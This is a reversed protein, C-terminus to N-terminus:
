RQRVKSGLIYRLDKAIAMPSQEPTVPMNEINILPASGDAGKNPANFVASWQRDTLVPEPRGTGNHVLSTGPMLQGGSDFLSPPRGMVVAARAAVERVNAGTHPAEVIKSVPNSYMWVHGPHPFGLDGPQPKDVPHVWNIQAESVRPIDKVGAAQWARMTLGSCDFSDPGTAGWKYPKGLQAKAYALAPGGGAKDKGAIWKIVNAIMQKPANVLMQGWASGGMAKGAQDLLPNLLAEAGAKLGGAVLDRIGGVIGGGAFAGAFGPDGAIGLFRAVGGVGGSRAASNAGHVYKEGVAKTWEPRMIAEGGSVAAMGIDKGPTYGPYIGGSAFAIPSLKLNKLGLIDAVANWVKVIGNNYVVDVIFQVPKKAVDKVKDWATGILDVGAKFGAPIDKTVFSVLKDFVPKIVNNWAASIISGVKDFVPKVVNEHFWLIKPALTVTIFNWLAQFAPKIISEWVFKIAAGVKDFIPKVITNHFWLIKPALTVTFFNWLATLAPKIVNNWAYQVAASIGTWAPVIITNWLWAFIPALTNTIFGWIATFVPQIVNTWAWQVAVQIGQWAAEVAARFPPFKNWLFIVAAALAAIGIIILSIPNANLAANLLWQVATWAVTAARVIGQATAVLLQKGASIAAQVGIAAYQFAVKGLGVAATVATRGASVIATGATKAAGGAKSAATRIGDWALSAGKAATSGATKAAGAIASASTKAVSAAKSAATSIGSWVASGAKGVGTGIGKAASAIGSAAGKVLKASGTAAKGLGGWVSKAGDVITKTTEISKKVGDVATSIIKWTKFASVVGLIALTINRLAEPSLTALKQSIGVIVDLVGSGTGSLGTILNKVVTAINKVVEIVKPGNTKAYDIFSKFADSKGLGVGFKSFAAAAKEIGGVIVPTFPLFAKIIGAVGTVISGLSKGLGTIAGPAQATLQKFFDQWFKGGLAKSASKELGSLAKASGTILPTLPKFLGQLIKLGGTVLPLVAPELKKQWGLYADQFSKVAKAATKAAPSLQSMKSLLGGTAQAEKAAAAAQQLRLVKLQAEADKVRQNAQSLKDKAATVQKSGEIGAKDSAAQDQRLRKNRKQQDDLRQVAEDYSLQARKRQLETSKPDALVENLHQQAEEVSLAADREQLAGDKVSQTLDEMARKADQRAKTLDEEAQKATRKADVVSQEGQALQLASSAADAAISAATKTSGSAVQTAKDQEKLAESIRTMSPVAIAAVGAFGAGAAALPGSLALLGAGISAGVPIAALGGLAAALVGLSGLAGSIDVDVKARATKGDLASIQAQVATLEALASAIDVRVDASVNKGDLAQLDRQIVAVEALADAANIDVGITKGSLEAMRARLEALKTEAATSDADIEAKPLSQFAAQLRAKFGRAFAGAIEDGDKPAQTRQRQTQEKLPEYIGKLNDSIGRQIDAGIDQGLKYAGPLIQKKLDNIFGRASPVVPVIVDGATFEAV